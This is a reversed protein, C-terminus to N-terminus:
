QKATLAKVQKEFKEKEAMYARLTPEFGEPLDSGMYMRGIRRWQKLENMCAQFADNMAHMETTTVLLMNEPLNHSAAWLRREQTSMDPLQKPDSGNPFPIPENM